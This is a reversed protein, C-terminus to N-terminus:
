HRLRIQFLFCFANRNFFANVIIKNSLPAQYLKCHSFHLSWATIIQRSYSLFIIRMPFGIHIWLNIFIGKKHTEFIFSNEGSKCVVFFPKGDIIIESKAVSLNELWYRVVKKQSSWVQIEEISIVFSSTHSPPCLFNYSQGRMYPVSSVTWICVCVRERRRAIERERQIVCVCLLSLSLAFTLRCRPFAYKLIVHVSIDLSSFPPPPTM